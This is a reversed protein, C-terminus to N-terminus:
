TVAVGLTMFAGVAPLGEAQFQRKEVVNLGAATILALHDRNLHCGDAIIKQLPTLRHQWKAVMPDPSLGHEVFYFKGGPKLVRKVELLASEVDPISCLTWTSVVADFSSAPMPLSEGSVLAFRVPRPSKQLRKEALRHVGPNVDVSTIRTVADPYHDLNLGTGFGIELVEGRVDALLEERAQTFAPQSMLWDLVYPFVHRSYLSM